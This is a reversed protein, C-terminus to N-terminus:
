NLQYILSPHSKTKFNRYKVFSEAMIIDIKNQMQGIYILGDAHLLATPQEVLFFSSAKYVDCMQSPDGFKMIDLKKKAM